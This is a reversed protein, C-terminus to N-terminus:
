STVLSADADPPAAPETVWETDDGGRAKVAYMARDAAHVLSAATTAATPVVTVGGVSVSVQVPEKALRLDLVRVTQRLREANRKQVYGM